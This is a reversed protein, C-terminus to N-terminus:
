TGYRRRMRVCARLLPVCRSLARARPCAPVHDSAGTAKRMRTLCGTSCWGSRTSETAGRDIGNSPTSVDGGIRELRTLIQDDSGADEVGLDYRLFVAMHRATIYLEGTAVTKMLM